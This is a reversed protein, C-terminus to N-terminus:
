VKSFATGVKYSDRDWQFSEWIDVTKARSNTNSLLKNIHASIPAGFISMQKERIMSAHGFCVLEGTEKLAKSPTILGDECVGDFVIDMDGDAIKLWDISHESVPTAGLINRVYAHRSPPATAFVVARGKLCLQILAQGVADMGGVILVKKGELSFMPGDRTVAKLAQYASTYVTVMAAAEASDVGLPVKVLSSEPVSIYRANGGTRVLAAVRDGEKTAGVKDGRAVVHGVVDHGPIVPVRAASLVSFSVGRRILCDGLTLTSAQQL